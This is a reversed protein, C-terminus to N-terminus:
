RSLWVPCPAHRVVREAVSGMLAREIGRRGHTGMIILDVGEARAVALIRDYAPGREVRATVHERVTEPQAEMFAHLEDRAAEDLGKGLRHADMEDGWLERDLPLYTSPPAVAHIALAEAGFAEALAAGRALAKSSGESFDIPILIKRITM